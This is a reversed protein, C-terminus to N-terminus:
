GQRSDLNRSIEGAMTVDRERPPVACWRKYFEQHKKKFTESVADLTSSSNILGNLRSQRFDALTAKCLTLMTTCHPFNFTLSDNYLDHSMESAVFILWLGFLGVGRM